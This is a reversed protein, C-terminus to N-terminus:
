LNSGLRYQLNSYAIFTQVIEEKKAGRSENAKTISPDTSAPGIAWPANVPAQCLAIEEARFTM